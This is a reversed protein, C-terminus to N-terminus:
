KVLERAVRISLQQAIWVMFNKKEAFPTTPNVSSYIVGILVNGSNGNEDDLLEVDGFTGQCMAIFMSIAGASRLQFKYTKNDGQSGLLYLEGIKEGNLEVNVFPIPM